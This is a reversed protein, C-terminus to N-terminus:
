EVSGNVPFSILTSSSLGMLQSPNLSISKTKNGPQVKNKIRAIKLDHVFRLYTAIILHQIQAFITFKWHFSHLMPSYQHSVLVGFLDKLFTTQRCSLNSYSITCTSVLHNSFNGTFIQLTSMLSNAMSYYIVSVQWKQWNLWPLYDLTSLFKHSVRCIQLKISGAWLFTNVSRFAKSESHYERSDEFHGLHM